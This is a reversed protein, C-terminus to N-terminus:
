SFHEFEFTKNFKIVCVRKYQTPFMQRSYIQQCQQTDKCKGKAGIFHQM